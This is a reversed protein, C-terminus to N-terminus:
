RNDAGEPPAGSNIARDRKKRERRSATGGMRKEKFRDLMMRVAERRGQQRSRREKHQAQFEKLMLKLDRIRLGKGKAALARLRSLLERQEGQFERLRRTVEEKRKAQQARLGQILDQFERLRQAEGKALSDKAQGLSERLSRAMERQENLYLNLLNKVEKERETQFLLIGQMMTDFDKRRLSENKALCDKLERSITEREKRTNALVDQFGELMQCTTDLVTGISQIRIEYFSLIHDLIESPDKPLATDSQLENMM